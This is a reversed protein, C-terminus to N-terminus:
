GSAGVPSGDIEYSREAEEMREVAAILKKLERTDVFTADKGRLLHAGLGPTLFVRLSPSLSVYYSLQLRQAPV